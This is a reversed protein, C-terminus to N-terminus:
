SSTPASSRSTRSETNFYGNLAAIRKKDSLPVSLWPM